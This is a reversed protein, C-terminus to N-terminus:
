RLLRKQVEKNNAKNCKDFAEFLEDKKIHPNERRFRDIDYVIEKERRLYLISNVTKRAVLKIMRRILFRSPWIRM